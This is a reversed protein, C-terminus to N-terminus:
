VIMNGFFFDLTKKVFAFLVTLFGNLADTVAESVDGVSLVKASDIYYQPLKEIM